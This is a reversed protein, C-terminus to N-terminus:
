VTLHPRTETEPYFNESNSTDFCKELAPSPLYRGGSNKVIWPISNFNGLFGAPYRTQNSQRQGWQHVIFSQLYPNLSYMEPRNIAGNGNPARAILSAQLVSSLLCAQTLEIDEAPVNWPERDFNFPFGCEKITIRGGSPNTFVADGLMNTFHIKGRQALLFSRFEKDESTASIWIQDRQVLNAIDIGQTVDQGTCGFICNANAFVEELSGVRFLNNHKAMKQFSKQNEDYIVIKHGESLLYEVVAGGIAGNGIVGFIVHDKFELSNITKKLRKLIAEAILPPELYIKTACTAVPIVPCLLKNLTKSYLGGRTQEIAATAYKFRTAHPMQEIMRGGDDLVIIKNIQPNQKLHDLLIDWLYRTHEICAEQYGGPYEPIADPVIKMGLNRMSLEVAKCTSYLKGTFIMCSPNAGLAIMAKFLTATTELKHQTGIFATNELSLLSHQKVTTVIRNILDLSPIPHMAINSFLRHQVVTRKILQYTPLVM